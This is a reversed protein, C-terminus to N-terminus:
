GTVVKHSIATWRATALSTQTTDKQAKEKGVLHRPHSSPRFQTLNQPNKRGVRRNLRPWMILMAAMGMFLLIRTFSERFGISVHYTADPVRTSGPHNLYCGQISRSIKLPFILYPFNLFSLPWPFHKLNSDLFKRNIVNTQCIQKELANISFNNFILEHFEYFMKICLRIFVTFSHSLSWKECYLDLANKLLLYYDM